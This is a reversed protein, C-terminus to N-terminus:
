LLPSIHMQLSVCMSVCNSIAFAVNWCWCPRQPHQPCDLTGTGRFAHAVKIIAPPVSSLHQFDLQLRLVSYEKGRFVCQYHVVKSLWTTDPFSIYEKFFVDRSLRCEEDLFRLPIRTVVPGKCFLLDDTHIHIRLNTHTTQGAATQVVCHDPLDAFPTTWESLLKFVVAEKKVTAVDHRTSPLSSSSSSSAMEYSSSSACKSSVSSSSPVLYRYVVSGFWYVFGEIIDM